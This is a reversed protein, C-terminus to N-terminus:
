FGTLGRQRVPDLRSFPVAGSGFSSVGLRLKAESAEVCAPFPDRLYEALGRFPEFFRRFLTDRCGLNIDGCEVQLSGTDGTVGALRCVPIPTGRFLAECGGLDARPMEVETPLPHGRM